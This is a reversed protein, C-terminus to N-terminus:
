GERGGEPRRRFEHDENLLNGKTWLEPIFMKEKRFYLLPNDEAVREDIEPVPM